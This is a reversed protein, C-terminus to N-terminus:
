SHSKLRKIISENTTELKNDVDELENFPLYRLINGDNRRNKMYKPYDTAKIVVIALAGIDNSDSNISFNSIRNCVESFYCKRTVFNLKLIKQKL